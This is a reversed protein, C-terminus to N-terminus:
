MGLNLSCTPAQWSTCPFVQQTGAQLHRLLGRQARQAHALQGNLCADRGADDVDQRPVPRDRARRQGLVGADVLHALEGSCGSQVGASAKRYFETPCMICPRVM